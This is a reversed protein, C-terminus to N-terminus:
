HELAEQILTKQEQAHVLPSGVAPAASAARGVYRLRQGAGLCALLRHQTCYWPGQNKPEEQCWIIDQVKSYQSLQERLAEHPFPYLQEIRILAVEQRKQARRQELLDYYVKGSCLIVRTVAQELSDIEPIVTQFHGETLEALMSVALKHRLLSKPSMIILPKRYDRLMQRRLLHFIQAPTTPVCVQMNEQACLQLFRELRASTHEPGAGEYGHPLLLVLGCLRGWKQESSSLFQDIVVQAGNVFDGYQAEWIVLSKPNASAYGYEFGMVGAESLTSDIVAFTQDPQALQALPVFIEGTKHDHLVAHRHFFTGRGCDQGSIRVGFNEQLLTAYALNEAYGWNLPLQGSTMKRRDEIIKAVQPQLTFAAPLTELTKALKKLPELAVGTPVAQNWSQNQYFHWDIRYPNNYEQVSLRSVVPKGSALQSRYDEMAQHVEAETLVAETILKQAYQDRVTARKKIAQYVLPQTASPEDAENHGHRRYCVLDIVVDRRFRQRFTLATQLAFLVAEPDDGNVHFIPAEIMKAPDSCYWSSRSNQPDTTFGIQNNVIIHLTGGTSYGQTQSLELTEMVIGQGSFAADGHILVPLVQKGTDDGRREQRSRVSGEVVPNVIELHSPNFAMAIHLIGAETQMDTAFGKHYKVDGSRNEETLKGEFEEFLKSPLKGLINILVNLRGRHAMGIVIEEVGEPKARAVLNDLLPILSDGGELSFRKQAVFKSGLYKELGEGRILGQLIRKKETATYRLAGANAEIQQQLWERAVEDSLHQTEFGLSACYIKKLTELLTPVSTQNLGLLGNLQIPEQQEALTLGVSEPLLAAIPRKPALGLPDLNAQYHGYRRYSQILIQAKLTRVEATNMAASPMAVSRTQKALKLFFDRIDAHSVDQPDTVQDFYHKWEAALQTPDHLYQEYLSELYADNGSFLYSDFRLTQFTSKEHETM